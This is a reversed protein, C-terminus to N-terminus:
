RGYKELQECIYLLSKVFSTPEFGLENKSKALVFGTKRPRNNAQGIENATISSILTTDLHLTGALCRVAEEISFMDPGSIHYIGRSQNQMALLCAEALDDVWTPMRWQDSVVRIAHGQELQGKAWLVLNGRGRDPIAGYVLITRLIAAKAKTKLIAEEAQVKTFGYYNVPKTNDEEVYPGELGDFVFDTSLFTMHVAHGEAYHALFETLEVNTLFAAEKNEECAEVATMAAAHLIHTPQFSDLSKRLSVFDNADLQQFDVADLYINRNKSKSIGFLQYPLGKALVIECFKQALFGNSGTIYIRM